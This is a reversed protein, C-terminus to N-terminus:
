AFCGVYWVVCCDSSVSFVIFSSSEYGEDFLVDGECFVVYRGVDILVGCFQLDDCEM